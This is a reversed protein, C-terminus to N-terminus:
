MRSNGKLNGQMKTDGRVRRENTFRKFFIGTLFKAFYTGLSFQTKVYFQIDNFYVQYMNIVINKQDPTRPKCIHVLLLVAPTFSM